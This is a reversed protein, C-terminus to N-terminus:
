IGSEQAAQCDLWAEFEDLDILIKRGMRKVCVSFGNEASNFILWRISASTIGSEPYLNPLRQVTCLRKHPM